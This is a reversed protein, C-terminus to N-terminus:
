GVCPLEQVAHVLGTALGDFPNRGGDGDILGVRHARRAGGHARHRLQVIVQLQEERAGRAEVAAAASVRDAPVRGRVDVFVQASAIGGFIRRGSDDDGERHFHRPVEARLLHFPQEGALAVGANVPPLALVELDDLVPHPERGRVPGADRFREFGRQPAAAPLGAHM